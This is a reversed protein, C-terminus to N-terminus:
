KILVLPKVAVNKGTQIRCYYVGNGVSHGKKDIGDWNLSYSGAKQISDLLCAIEQGKINYIKISVVECSVLKYNITVRNSFPNPATKLCLGNIYPSANDQIPTPLVKTKLYFFNSGNAYEENYLFYLTNNMLVLRPGWGYRDSNTLMEENNWNEGTYCITNYISIWGDFFRKYSILYQTNDQYVISIPRSDTTIIVIPDWNGNIKSTYCLQTPSPMYEEWALHPFNNNDVGITYGWWLRFTGLPTPDEWRDAQSNYFYYAAKPVSSGPTTYSGICHLNNNHDAVAQRISFMQKTSDFPTIMPSLVGNEIFCYHAGSPFYSLIFFVYVRDKNDIMFDYVMIGEYDLVVDVFAGWVGNTCKRYHIKNNEYAHYDYLIHLNNQSDVAIWPFRMLSELGNEESIIVPETWIHGGDESKAYMIKVVVEPQYVQAWVVHIIGQSDICYDYKETNANMFPLSIPESWEQAILFASLFILSITCILKTQKLQHWLDKQAYWKRSIRSYSISDLIHLMASM